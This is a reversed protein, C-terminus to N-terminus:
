RGQLSEIQKGVWAGGAMELLGFPGGLYAPFGLCSVVAYDAMQRDMDSLDQRYQSAAAVMVALLRGAGTMWGSLPGDIWLGTRQVPTPPLNAPSVEVPRSASPLPQTFGAKRADADARERGLRDAEAGLAQRVDNMLSALWTPTNGANVLRQYAQRGYFLTAMMVKPEPRLLLRVLAELEIANAHDMDVALGRELCDLMATIAPYHGRTVQEQEQRLKALHDSTPLAPRGPRSWAPQASPQTRLWEVAKAV